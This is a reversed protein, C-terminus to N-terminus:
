YQLTTFQIEPLLALRVLVPLNSIMNSASQPNLIYSVSTRQIVEDTKTEVREVVGTDFGRFVYVIYDSGTIKAYLNWYSMGTKIGTEEQFERVMALLSFEDEEVKGGVGNLKGAQWEPRKKEILVVQKEDETFMFGVVYLKM